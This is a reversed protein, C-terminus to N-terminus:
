KRLQRYTSYQHQINYIHTHAETYDHSLQIRENELHLISRKQNECTQCHIDDCMVSVQM